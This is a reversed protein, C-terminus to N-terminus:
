ESGMGARGAPSRLPVRRWEPSGDPPPPPVVARVFCWKGRDVYCRGSEGLAESRWEVVDMGGYDKCEALLGVVADDADDRSGCRYITVLPEDYDIGDLYEAVSCPREGSEVTSGLFMLYADRSMRVNGALESEPRFPM